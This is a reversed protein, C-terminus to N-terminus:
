LLPGDHKFLQDPVQFTIDPYPYGSIRRFTKQVGATIFVDIYPIQFTDTSCIFHIQRDTPEVSQLFNYPLGACLNTDDAAATKRKKKVAVPFTM